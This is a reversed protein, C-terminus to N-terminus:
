CHDKTHTKLSANESKKGFLQRKFWALQNKLRQNEERLVANEVELHSQSNADSLCATVALNM